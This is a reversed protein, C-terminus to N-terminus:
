FHLVLRPSPSTASVPQHLSFARTRPQTLPLLATALAHALSGDTIKFQFPIGPFPILYRNM